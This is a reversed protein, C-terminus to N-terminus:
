PEGTGKAHLGLEEAQYSAGAWKILEGTVWGKEWATSWSCLVRVLEELACDQRRREQRKCM